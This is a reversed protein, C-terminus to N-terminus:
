HEGEDIRGPVKSPILLANSIEVFQPALVVQLSSPRVASFRLRISLFRSDLSLDALRTGAMAVQIM